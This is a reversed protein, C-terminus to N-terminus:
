SVFGLMEVDEFGESFTTVSQFAIAGADISVSVAADAPLDAAPNITVTSGSISVRDANTVDITEVVAGNAEITINGTGVSVAEDYELVLDDAPNVFSSDPAPSISVLDAALLNRNELAELQQLRRKKLNSRKPDKRM